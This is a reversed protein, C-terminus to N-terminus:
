VALRDFGLLDDEGDAGVGLEGPCGSDGGFRRGLRADLFDDVDIALSAGAQRAHPGGAGSGAQAHVGDDGRAVARAHRNVQDAAGFPLPVDVVVRHRLWGLHSSVLWTPISSSPCTAITVPAFRPAITFRAEIAPLTGPGPPRGYAALLAATILM